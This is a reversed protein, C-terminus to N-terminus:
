PAAPPPPAAPLQVSTTLATVTGEDDIEVEPDDGNEDQTFMVAPPPPPPPPPAEMGRSAGVHPLAEPAGLSDIVRQVDTRTETNEAAPSPKRRLTLIDDLMNIAAALEDTPM